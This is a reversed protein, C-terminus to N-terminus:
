TQNPRVTQLSSVPNRRQMMQPNRAIQHFWAWTEVRAANRSPSPRVLSPTLSQCAFSLSTVYTILLLCPTLTAM